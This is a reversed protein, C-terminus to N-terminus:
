APTVLPQASLSTEFWFCKLKKRKRKKKNRKYNL